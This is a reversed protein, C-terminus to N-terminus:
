ILKRLMWISTHCALELQFIGKLKMQRNSTKSNRFLSAQIAYKSEFKQFLCQTRSNSVNVQRTIKLQHKLKNIQPVRNSQFYVLQGNSFRNGFNNFNLLLPSLKSEDIVAPSKQLINIFENDLTLNLNGHVSNFEYTGIHWRTMKAQWYDDVFVQIIKKTVEGRSPVSLTIEMPVIYVLDFQVDWDDPTTITDKSLKQKTWKGDQFESYGLKIVTLMHSADPILSKEIKLICKRGSYIYDIILIAPSIHQSKIELNVKEWATWYGPNDATKDIQMRFYLETTESQVRGFVYLINRSEDKVHGCINLNAVNHLKLLYNKFVREFNKLLLKTKFFRMRQKRFYPSKDLRLEPEIWNEPYLFVKRNAEWVRFYRMWKWQDWALEGAYIMTFSGTSVNKVLRKSTSAEIELGIFCRQVFLQISLYAQVVRTTYECPCMEADILYYAYLDNKDNWHMEGPSNHILYSSLASIKQQRIPDYIKQSIDWWDSENVNSKAIQYVFQADSDTLQDKICADMQLANFESKEFVKYQSIFAEINTFIPDVMQPYDTYGKYNLFEILRFSETKLISALSTIFQNKNSELELGASSIYDVRQIISIFNKDISKKYTQNLQLFKTSNIFKDIKTSDFYDSFPINYFSFIDFTDALHYMTNGKRQIFFDIHNSELSFWDIYIKIKNLKNYYVGLNVLSFSADNFIFELVLLADKLTYDITIFFKHFLNQAQDETFGFESILENTVVQSHYYVYLQAIYNTLEVKREAISMSNYPVGAILIAEIRDYQGDSYKSEFCEEIFDRDETPVTGDIFISDIKFSDTDSLSVCKILVNMLNESESGNFQSMFESFEIQLKERIRNYFSIITASSTDHKSDIDQNYLFYFIEKVGFKNKCVMEYSKNYFSAFSALSAFISESFNYVYITESGVIEDVGHFM